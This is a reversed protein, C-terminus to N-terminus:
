HPGMVAKSQGPTDMQGTEEALNNFFEKDDQRLAATVQRGLQRFSHLALAIQRDLAAFDMATNEIPLGDRHLWADFCLQLLNRDCTKQLKSLQTRQNKKALILTWTHESLHKRMPRAPGRAYSRRSWRQLASQLTYTHSHVDAEWSCAPISDALSRLTEERAIGSLDNRLLDTALPISKYPGPCHSLTNTWEITVGPANHDERCLSLDVDAIASTCYTLNWKLPIGVYDGRGWKGTKPHLWTGSGGSHCHSFTSPLWTGTDLLFDHLEAGAHDQVDADCDGIAQSNMDGTRANADIMLLLPWTRYKGPIAKKLDKWWQTVDANTAQTTPAHASIAIAKLFPACVKVILYRPNRAVLKFHERRFFLGDGLELTRTFWLQTGFHGQPTAPASFVFYHEQEIKCEKRMRSEQVGVIHYKESSFARQLAELRARGQLGTAKATTTSSLLSLVNATALSCSVTCTEETTPVAAPISANATTELVQEAPQTRPAEPLKLRGNRWLSKWETKWLAWLWQAEVPHCLDFYTTWTSPRADVFHKWSRAVTDAAENGPHGTHGFVHHYQLQLNFRAEIFYVVARINAVLEKYRSGGWQGFAKYGASTADFAFTVAPMSPQLFSLHLLTTNVWHM